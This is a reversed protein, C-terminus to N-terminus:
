ATVFSSLIRTMTRSTIAATIKTAAVSPTTAYACSLGAATSLDVTNSEPNM